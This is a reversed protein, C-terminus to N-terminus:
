GVCFSLFDGKERLELNIEFLILEVKNMVKLDIEKKGEVYNSGLNQVECNRM